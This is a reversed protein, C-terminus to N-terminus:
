GGGSGRSALWARIAPVHEDHLHSAFRGKMLPTGGTWEFADPDTLQDDRLREIAAALREFSSDYDDLVDDLARQRNQEHIWDNIRDDDHLDAPWPKPPDPEGRAAAELQAIRVNRWGALHAALDRFTWDGMPGPEDMRERGVEDLLARWFARDARIEAAFQERSTTPM